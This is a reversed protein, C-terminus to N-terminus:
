TLRFESRSNNPVLFAVLFDVAGFNSHFNGMFMRVIAHFDCWILIETLDFNDKEIRM